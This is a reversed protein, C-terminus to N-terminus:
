DDFKRIKWVELPIENLGAAKRTKIKTLVINLEEQTFQGRKIDLQRNIRKTIPRHIVKPFNGLVNKFYEKCMLIREEQSATKLKAKLTSKRKNM